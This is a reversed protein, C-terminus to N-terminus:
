GGSSPAPIREVSPQTFDVVTMQGATVTAIREQTVQRGAQIWTARIRYTYTGGYALASTHYLRDTGTSTTARGDFFVIAQPDPVIVRVDAAATTATVPPYPYTPPTYYYSYTPVYYTPAIWVSRNVYTPYYYRYPPYSYASRYAPNYVVRTGRRRQAEALNAALLLAAFSLVMPILLRKSIM